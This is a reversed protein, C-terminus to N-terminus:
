YPQSARSIIASFNLQNKATVAAFTYTSAWRCHFCKDLPRNLRCYRTSKRGLALAIRSCGFPEQTFHQISDMIEFGLFTILYSHLADGAV